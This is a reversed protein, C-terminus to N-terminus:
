VAGVGFVLVLLAFVIAPILGVFLELGYIGIPAVFPVLFTLILLLIGGAFINGFLRFSFSLIRIFESVLELIGVFSMVPNKLPNVFFKGLYGFGLYKFGWFEIIFFAVIALGLTNNLDSFAARFFPYIMAVKTGPFE